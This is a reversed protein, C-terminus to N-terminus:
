LNAFSKLMKLGLNQSKEPHFQCAFINDKAISSVFERGYDTMTAIVQPDKPVVHYSHVFYFYANDDIDALVPHRRKKLLRNWGMHPIKYQQPLKFKIVKGPIVGLGKHKGFEEGEDFLVQLGMCIGLFPKKQDIVSKITAALGFKELNEMCAGFAGVGPLVIKSAKQVEGPDSTVIAKAGIKEFAKQVSRLNGMGYDVIAITKEPPKESTKESTEGM